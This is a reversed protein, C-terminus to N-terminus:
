IVKALAQCINPTPNIGYEDVFARIRHAALSAFIQKTFPKSDEAHRILVDKYL